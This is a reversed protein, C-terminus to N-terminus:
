GNNVKSRGSQHRPSINIGPSVGYRAKDKSSLCIQSPTTRAFQCADDRVGERMKGWFAADRDSPTCLKDSPRSSPPVGDFSILKEQAPSPPKKPPQLEVNSEPPIVPSARSM